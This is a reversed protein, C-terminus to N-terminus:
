MGKVKKLFQVGYIVLGVAAAMSIWGLLQFDHNLAWFGFVLSLALAATILFLHINKIGM